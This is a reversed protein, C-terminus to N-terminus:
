SNTLLNSIVLILGGFFIAAGMYLRFRVRKTQNIGTSRRAPAPRIKSLGLAM